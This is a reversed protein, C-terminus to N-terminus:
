LPTSESMMSRTNATLEDQATEFGTGSRAKSAIKGLLSLLNLETHMAQNQPDRRTSEYPLHDDLRVSNLRCHFAWDWVESFRVLLSEFWRIAPIKRFTVYLLM